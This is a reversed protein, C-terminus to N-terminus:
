KKDAWSYRQGDLIELEECIRAFIGDMYCMQGGCCRGWYDSAYENKIVCEGHEILKRALFDTVVYWSAIEPLAQNELETIEDELESIQSEIEECAEDYLEETDYADEDLNDRQEQLENIKEQLEEKEKEHANYYNEIDDYSYPANSDEYSQNLIYDMEVTVNCLINKNTFEKIIEQNVSSNVNGKYEEM